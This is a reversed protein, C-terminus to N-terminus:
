KLTTGEQWDRTAKDNSRETVRVPIPLQVSTEQYSHETTTPVRRSRAHNSLKNVDHTKDSLNM